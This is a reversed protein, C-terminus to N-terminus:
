KKKLKHKMKIEFMNGYVYEVSSCVCLVRQHMYIINSRKRAYM